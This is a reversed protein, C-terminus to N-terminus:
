DTKLTLRRIPKLYRCLEGALLAPDVGRASFVRDWVREFCCAGDPFEVALELAHEYFSRPRKRVQERAVAFQAGVHFHAWPPADEDLLRRHFEDFKLERREPNKSWPVFLRHGRPDDSDIIFGLWRFGDVQTAGADLERLFAHLDHAHDFPRGQCFVTVPSLEDYHDVVHRLYSHAERGVNPLKRIRIGPFLRDDLDGGKDQLTVAFSRPTNRTWDAPEKYRAVVIEVAAASRPPRPRSRDM